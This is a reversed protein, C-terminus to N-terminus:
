PQVLLLTHVIDVKQSHSSKFFHIEMLLIIASKKPVSLDM